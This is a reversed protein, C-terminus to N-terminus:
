SQTVTHTLLQCGDLGPHQLQLHFFLSLPHSLLLV